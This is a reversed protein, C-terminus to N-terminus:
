SISMKAAVGCFAVIQFREAMSCVKGSVDGPATLAIADVRNCWDIPPWQKAQESKKAV